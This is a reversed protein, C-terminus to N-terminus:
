SIHNEIFTSNTINRLSQLNSVNLLCCLYCFNELDKMKYKKKKLSLISFTFSDRISIKELIVFECVAFCNVCETRGKSRLVEVVIISDVKMGEIAAPINVADKGIIILLDAFINSGGSVNATKSRDM